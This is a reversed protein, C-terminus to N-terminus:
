AADFDALRRSHEMVPAPEALDPLGVSECRRWGRRAEAIFAELAARSVGDSRMIAQMVPDALMECLRPEIGPGGWPQRKHLACPLKPWTFIQTM